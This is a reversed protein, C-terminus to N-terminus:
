LSWTVDSGTQMVLVLTCRTALVCRDPTSSYTTCINVVASPITLYYSPTAVNIAVPKDGVLFQLYM